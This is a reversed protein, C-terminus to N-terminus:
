AHIHRHMYQAVRFAKPQVEAATRCVVAVPRHVERCRKLDCMFTYTHLNLIQGINM